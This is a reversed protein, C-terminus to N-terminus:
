FDCFRIYILNECKNNSSTTRGYQRAKSQSKGITKRQGFDHGLLHPWCPLCLGCIVRFLPGNRLDLTPSLHQWGQNTFHGLGKWLLLFSRRLCRCFQDQMPVFNAGPWTHRKIRSQHAFVCFVTWDDEIQVLPLYPNWYGTCILLLKPDYLVIELCVWLWVGPADSCIM